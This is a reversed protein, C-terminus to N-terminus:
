QNSSPLPGPARGVVSSPVLASLHLVFGGSGGVAGVGCAAVDRGRADCAGCEAPPLRHKRGRARVLRERRPVVRRREHRHLDGGASPPPRRLAGGPAVLSTGVLVDSRRELGGPGVIETNAHGDRFEGGHAEAGPRRRWALEPALDSFAAALSAIPAVNVARDLAADLYRFAPPPDPEVPVITGTSKALADSIRGAAEGAPTGAEVLGSLTEGTAELFRSLAPSRKM